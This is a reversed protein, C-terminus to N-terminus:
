DISPNKSTLDCRKRYQAVSAWVVHLDKARIVFCRTACGRLKVSGIRKLLPNAEHNSFTKDRDRIAATFDCFESFLEKEIQNVGSKGWLWISIRASCSLGGTWTNNTKGSPSNFITGTSPSILGACPPSKPYRIHLLWSDAM